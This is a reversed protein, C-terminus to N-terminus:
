VAQRPVALLELALELPENRLKAASVFIELNNVLKAQGSFDKLMKPRLAKDYQQEESSFNKDSGSLDVETM